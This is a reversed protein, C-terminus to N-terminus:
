WGFVGCCPWVCFANGTTHGPSANCSVFWVRTDSVGLLSIVCGWSKDGAFEVYKSACIPLLYNEKCTGIWYVLCSSQLSVTSHQPFDCSSPAHLATQRRDPNEEREVIVHHKSLQKIYCLPAVCSMPCWSGLQIKEPKQVPAPASM